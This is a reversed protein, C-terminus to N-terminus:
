AERAGLVDRDFVLGSRLATPVLIKRLFRDPADGFSAHFEDILHSQDYYGCTAALDSWDVVGRSMEEMVSSLRVIRVYEKPGLGVHRRFALQLARTTVGLEAAVDGVRIRGGHNRVVVAAQSVCASAAEARRLRDLLHRSMVKIREEDTPAVELDELLRSVDAQDWFHELGLTQGATVSAPVGTLIRGGGPKFRAVCQYRYIGSPVVHIVDRAGSVVLAPDPVGAGAVADRLYALYMTAEPARKLYSLTPAETRSMSTFFADVVRRLGLPPPHILWSELALDKDYWDGSVAYEAGRERRESESTRM